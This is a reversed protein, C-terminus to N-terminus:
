TDKHNVVQELLQFVFNKDSLFSKRAAVDTIDACIARLVNVSEQLCKGARQQEGTERQIRGQLYLLQWQEARLGMRRAIDLAQESLALAEGCEGSMLHLEALGADEHAILVPDAVERSLARAQRLYGHAQEHYNLGKYVLGLHLLALEQERAARIERAVEYAQTFYDIAEQFKVQRRYIEGLDVLLCAEARRAGTDRAIQLAQDLWTLAQNYLGLASSNLGLLAAAQRELIRDGAPQALRLVGKAGEM